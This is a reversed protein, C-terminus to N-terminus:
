ENGGEDRKEPSRPAAKTPATEPGAEEASGPAAEEASEPESEAPENGWLGLWRTVAFAIAAVLVLGWVVKSLTSEQQPGSEAGAARRFGSRMSQLVGGSHPTGSSTSSTTSGTATGKSKRKRKKRKETM